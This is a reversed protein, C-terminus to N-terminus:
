EGWWEPHPNAKLWRYFTKPRPAPPSNKKFWDKMLDYAGAKNPTGNKHRPLLRPKGEANAVWKSVHSAAGEWDHTPDVGGHHKAAPETGTAPSPPEAAVLAAAVVKLRKHRDSKPFLNEAL